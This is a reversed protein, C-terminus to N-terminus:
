GRCVAFVVRGPALAVDYVIRARLAPLAIRAALYAPTAAALIIVM